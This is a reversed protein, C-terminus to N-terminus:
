KKELVCNIEFDTFDRKGDKRKTTYKTKVEKFYPSKELEDVFSFVISMSEATGRVTLKGLEDYRIDSLEIELPIKDYFEAMVEISIGRRSLYNRIMNVKNFDDQIKKAETNIPDYRKTLSNLYFSKFYIKSLLALFVLTFFALILIGAKIMERARQQISRRLKVDEPTLDAKTEHGSQLAAICNLYSNYDEGSAQQIIDRSISLNSFYTITNTPLRVTDNIVREVDKLQNTAGTITFLLPMREIDENQYSELSKKIEEGYKVLYKDAELRLQKAGMPISRIFILRNNFIILFDSSSDDIHIVSVPHLSSDIKLLKSSSSAVGEASFIVKNVKLGIKELLEFNKKVQAALVIVLVIKTYNNKYTGIDIYDVIIEERSYPTHRAAQLNIIERIEQANTSPVEINKTIVLNAPISVTVLPSKANVQELCSLVVQRMDNDSLGTIDKSILHAISRFTGSQRAHAIKIINNGFEIGIFEKGM